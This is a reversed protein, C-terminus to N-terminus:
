RSLEVDLADGLLLRAEVSWGFMDGVLCVVSRRGGLSAEAETRKM